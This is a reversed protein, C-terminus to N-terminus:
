RPKPAQSLVPVWTLGNKKEVLLAVFTRDRRNTAAAAKRFAGPDAVPTGDLQVIVDGPVLGAAGGASDPDVSTVLAGSTRTVSYRKRLAPTLAGLSIGFDPHTVIAALSASAQPPKASVRDAPYAGVTVSIPHAAGGRWVTLTLRQGIQQRGVTRLVDSASDVQTSGIATIVDGSRLGAQAAPAHDQTAVVIAGDPKGMGLANALQWTITQLKVGIWGAQITGYRRLRDAVFAVDDSPIAFGIGASGGTPSILATDVGIVKGATDVMPGGSDGHNIPADTQVLEDYPSMGVNRDLASVIGEGVSIGVGLPNGITFVREGIRLQSSDGFALAPLKRDVDVRLLALDLAGGFGTVTAVAARGDAFAVSIIDAGAVVHRNTVIVGNSDIIFGSGFVRTWQGSHAGDRAFHWAAINVVSPLVGQLMTVANACKGSVPAPFAGNSGIMVFILTPLLIRAIAACVQSTM